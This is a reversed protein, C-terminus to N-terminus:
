TNPNSRHETYGSTMRSKSSTVYASMTHTGRQQYHSHTNSSLKSQGGSRFQERNSVERQGEQLQNVLGVCYGDDATPSLRIMHEARSLVDTARKFDSQEGASLAEQMADACVLRNMQKDIKTNLQKPKPHQVRNIYTTTRHFEQKHTLLNICTLDVDLVTDRERGDALIPVKVICLIDKEEESYIDDILVRVSSGAIITTKKYNTKVEVLTTGKPAEINVTLNQAVVSLLGGLCDSFALPIADPTDIHYYMGNAEEAIERLYEPDPEKGYGFTFISCVAEIQGLVGHVARKIQATQTLGLNALGDTFLLVTAVDNAGQKPRRRILDLGQLLGGSTNTQGGVELKKLAYLARDKGEADMELLPFIVEVCQDYIVLGLHDGAKLQKVMFVITQQVLSLKDKM